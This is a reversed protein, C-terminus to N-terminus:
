TSLKIAAPTHQLQECRQPGFLLAVPVIILARDVRLAQGVVVWKKSQHKGKLAEM